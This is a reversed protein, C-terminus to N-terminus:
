SVTAVYRREGTVGETHLGNEKNVDRILLASLAPIMVVAGFMNWLFM